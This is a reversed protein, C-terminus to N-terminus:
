RNFMQIKITIEGTVTFTEFRLKILVLDYNTSNHIVVQEQVFERIVWNNDEEAM